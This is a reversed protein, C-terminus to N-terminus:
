LIMFDLVTNARLTHLKLFGSINIKYIITSTCYDDLKISLVKTYSNIGSNETITRHYSIARTEVDNMVSGQNSIDKVILDEYCKTINPLQLMKNLKDIEFRQPFSVRTKQNWSVVSDYEGM